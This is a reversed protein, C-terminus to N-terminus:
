APSCTAASSTPASGPAVGSPAQNITWCTRPWRTRRRHAIGFIAALIWFGLIIAGVIFAKQHTLERLFERRCIEAGAASLAGASEIPVTGVSM